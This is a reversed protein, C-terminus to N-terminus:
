KPLAWLEETYDEKQGEDELTLVLMEEPESPDGPNLLPSEVGVLPTVLGSQSTYHLLEKAAYEYFVSWLKSSRPYNESLSAEGFETFWAQFHQRFSESSFLADKYRRNYSCFKHGTRAEGSPMLYFDWFDQDRRAFHGRHRPYVDKM